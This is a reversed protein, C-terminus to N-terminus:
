TPPAPHKLPTTMAQVSDQTLVSPCLCSDGGPELLHLGESGRSLWRTSSDLAARVRHGQDILAPMKLPLSPPSFFFVLLGPPVRARRACM